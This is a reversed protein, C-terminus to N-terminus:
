RSLYNEKRAEGPFKKEWEALEKQLTAKEAAYKPVAAINTLELPDNQRDFMM